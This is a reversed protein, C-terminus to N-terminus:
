ALYELLFDDDIKKPNFIRIITVIIREGRMSDRCVVSFQMPLKGNFFFIKLPIEEHPALFLFNFAFMSESFSTKVFSDLEVNKAKNCNWSRAVSYLPRIKLRRSSKLDVSLIFQACTIKSLTCPHMSTNLFYVSTFCM